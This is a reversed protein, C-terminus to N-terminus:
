SELPKGSIFATGTMGAVLKGDARVVDIRYTAVKTSRSLETATATLVEGARVARNYVMHVDIGVAAVGHSNCAYGFAADALTFTLGGHCTGTFNLHRPEVTVRTTAQGASAEVLEIGLGACFPDAM